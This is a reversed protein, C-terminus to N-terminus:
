RLLHNSSILAPPARAAPLASPSVSVANALWYFRPFLLSGQLRAFVWGSSEAISIQVMRCTGDKSWCGDGVM